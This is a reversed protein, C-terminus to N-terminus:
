SSVSDTLYDIMEKDGEYVSGELHKIVIQEIRAKNEFANEKEVEALIAPYKKCAFGEALLNFTM